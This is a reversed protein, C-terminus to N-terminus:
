FRGYGRSREATRVTFNVQKFHESDLIYESNKWGKEVIEKAENTSGAEIEVEMQLTETIKVTYNKM